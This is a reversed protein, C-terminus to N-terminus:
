NGKGPAPPGAPLQFQANSRPPPEALVAKPMSELTKRATAADDSDPYTQILYRYTYVAGILARTRRYYDGTVLLKRALATDIRAILAKLNQQRAM